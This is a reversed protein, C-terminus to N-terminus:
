RDASLKKIYSDHQEQYPSPMLMSINKGIVEDENYSFIKEAAPNFSQIIGADDTTIIGEISTEIIAQLRSTTSLNTNSM